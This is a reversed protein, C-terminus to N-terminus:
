RLANNAIVFALKLDIKLLGDDVKKLKNKGTTRIIIKPERPLPPPIENSTAISLFESLV